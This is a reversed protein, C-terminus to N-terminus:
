AVRSLYISLAVLDNDAWIIGQDSVYWRATGIEFRQLRIGYGNAVNLQRFPIGSITAGFMQGSTDFTFTAPAEQYSTQINDQTYTFAQASSLPTCASTLVLLIAALTKPRISGTTAPVTPNTPVPTLPDQEDDHSRMNLHKCWKLYVVPVFILTLVGTFALGFIMAIAIPRWLESVFLLPILGIIATLKTLIIPRLRIAGGEIVVTRIPMDPNERRLRNFVDVLIIAHNVVVGALAIFGLMTPFSVPQGTLLLGFLVGILSLPVVSLVLLAERYFSFEIILIIFILVLGMVLALFMDQFSQNVDENEGGITMRVGDPLSLDTQARSSFASTVDAAYTGPDLQSTVTVIRTQDEHAITDNASTLHVAFVSGLHVTGQSTQVQLERLADVTAMSTESPTRFNPNLDTKVLVKIEDGGKKITTAETGFVATRLTTAVQMPSLGLEAAKTRDISLTLEAADNEASTTVDRTGSIDALLKKADLAVAKLENLDSGWFTLKIPAGSPPGNNPEYVRVTFTNFVSIRTQIDRLIETGTRTRDKTLNINISAFRDGTRVGQALDNVGFTSGSGVTTSFSEIEPIDYLVDEVARTALDTRELPTGQPLEIELYLYDVNAQPFFSVKVLGIVPLALAIVFSLVVGIVFKWKRARHDLLWVIKRRYWARSWEAFREQRKELNSAATQRFWTKAVLPIQGLAVFISAVLVFIVTFPISKIFEGTIGSITFLPLFVAITTLTGATLPKSYERLAERAATMKRMGKRMNVHIAETIVIASDVLIGISLILSFLSIFNITNGSEKLAVFSVLISLPISLAAVLAERWGLTAFLAAMVLVVAELGTKSLDRINTRIEDANDLTVFMQVDHQAAIEDLKARVASSLITVDAGGQKYVMLNAAQQSPKGNVSVRSLSRAEEVGDSVLAIDSLTLLQGSRTVIPLSAVQSSDTLDGNFSIAYDVGDQELSGIPFAANQAAIAAIVDNLSLDYQTLASRRVIVTVEAGRVGTIDVRSVGRIAELEDQVMDTFQKFESAPLDSSISALLVPQDAFNVDTVSPETADAPLTGRVKDVEDRVKQISTDINASADFQVSVLSLGERSSSTLTDINEVNNVAKEIENTILTEVDAPSAGPLATSVIAVPVRVEPTAERQLTFISVFGYVILGVMIFWTLGLRELLFNWVRLM